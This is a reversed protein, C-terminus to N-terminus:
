TNCREPYLLNINERFCHSEDAIGDLFGVFIIVLFGVIEWHVETIFYIAGALLLSHKNAGGIGSALGTTLSGRQKSMDENVGSRKVGANGFSSGFQLM